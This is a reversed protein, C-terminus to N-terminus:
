SRGSTASEDTGARRRGLVVLGLLVALGIWPTVGRRYGLTVDTVGQSVGEVRGPVYAVAYAVLRVLLLLDLPTAAVLLLPAWALADYWPLSYPAALVYAAGLVVAALAADGVM